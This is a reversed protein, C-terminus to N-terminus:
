VFNYSIKGVAEPDKVANDTTNITLADTATVM